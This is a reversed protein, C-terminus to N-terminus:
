RGIGIDDHMGLATNLNYGLIKNSYGLNWLQEEAIVQLIEFSYSTYLAATVQSSHSPLKVSRADTQHSYFTIIREPFDAYIKLFIEVSIAREVFQSSCHANSILPNVM